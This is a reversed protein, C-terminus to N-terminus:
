GRAEGLIEMAVTPDHFAISVGRATQTKEHGKGAIVVADDRGAEAFAKRIAERRDLERIYKKAGTLEPTIGAEIDRAIDAPDEDRSNDATLVVVDSLRASVAGMLPRKTRDRNGGCGFVTILRGKILPKLNSLLNKLADDTHAYDVFVSFEQGADVRELRGPIGLTKSIGLAAAERSIGMSLAVGAATLINFLNYRGVLPSDIVLDGFPTLATGRIGAISMEINGPRIDAPASSGVKIVKKGDMESALRVGYNDEINIVSAGGPKVLDFLKRKAEYYKEMTGHFDLHDRTLNTFAAADFKLSTVRHLELSHSSVEMASFPTKGLSLKRIWKHIFPAEPTTRSAEVLKEGDDYEITSLIGGGGAERFINRLLYTITTKGNTGTIGALAPADGAPPYFHAAAASLAKRAKGSVIWPVSTPFGPLPGGDSLVAAAGKEVAQVAYKRGDDRFGVLAAFIDGKEVDWSFCTIGGVVTEPSGTVSSFPIVSLLDGITMRTTM